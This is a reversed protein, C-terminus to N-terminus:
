PMTVQRSDSWPWVEGRGSALGPDSRPDQGAEGAAAGELLRRGLGQTCHPHRPYLAPPEEAPSALADGLDQGWKLCFRRLAAPLLPLLVEDEWLCAPSLRGASVSAGIGILMVCAGESSMARFGWPSAHRPASTSAGEEVVVYNASLGLPLPQDNPHRM